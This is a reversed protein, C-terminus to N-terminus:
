RSCLCKDTEEARGEICLRAVGEGIEEVMVRMINIM